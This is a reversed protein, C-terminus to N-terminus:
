GTRATASLDRRVAGGAAEYAALGVFRVRRDLAPVEGETLISRVMRPDISGRGQLRDFVREQAETDTTIAFAQAVQETM